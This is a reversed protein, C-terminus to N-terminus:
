TIIFLHGINTLNATETYLVKKFFLYISRKLETHSQCTRVDFLGEKIKPASTPYRVSTTHTHTYVNM